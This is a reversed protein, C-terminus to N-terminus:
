VVDWAHHYRSLDRRGDRIEELRGNSVRFYFSFKGRSCKKDRCVKELAARPIVVFDKEFVSRNEKVVPVYTIFVFVDADKLKERRIEHWSHEKGSYLRSEKIQISRPRSGDHRVALLDVGRDKIPFYLQLDPRKRALEEAVFWEGANM